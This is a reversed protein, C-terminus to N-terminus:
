WEWKRDMLSTEGFLKEMMHLQLKLMLLDGSPYQFMKKMPITYSELPMLLLSKHIVLPVVLHAIEGIM